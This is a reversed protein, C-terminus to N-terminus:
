ARGKDDQVQSITYHESDIWIGESALEELLSNAESILDMVREVKWMSDEFNNEIKLEIIKEM